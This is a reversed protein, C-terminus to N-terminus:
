WDPCNMNLKLSHWTRQPTFVRELGQENAKKCRALIKDDLVMKVTEDHFYFSVNLDDAFEDQLRVALREFMMNARTRPWRSYKSIDAAVDEWAKQFARCLKAEREPGIVRRVDDQNATPM